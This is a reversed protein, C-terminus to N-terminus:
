LFWLFASFARLSTLASFESVLVCIVRMKKKKLFVCITTDHPKDDREMQGREAFASAAGGEVGASVEKLFTKQHNDRRSAEFRRLFVHVWECFIVWFPHYFAGL